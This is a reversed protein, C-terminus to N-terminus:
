EADFRPWCSLGSYPVLAIMEQVLEGSDDDVFVGAFTLHVFHVFVSVFYNVGGMMIGELIKANMKGAVPFL